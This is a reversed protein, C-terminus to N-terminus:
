NDRDTRLGGLIVSRFRTVAVASLCNRVRNIGAIFTAARVANIDLVNLQFPASGDAVYLCEQHFFYRDRYLERLPLSLPELKSAVRSIAEHLERAGVFNVFSAFEASFSTDPLAFDTKM